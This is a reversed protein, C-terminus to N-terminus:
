ILMVRAWKMDHLFRIKISMKDKLVANIKDRVMVNKHKVLVVEIFFREYFWAKEM